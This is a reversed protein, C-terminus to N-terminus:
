KEYEEPNEWDFETDKPGEYGKFLDNMNVQSNVADNYKQLLEKYKTELTDREKLLMKVEVDIRKDIRSQLHDKTESKWENLLKGTEEVDHFLDTYTKEAKRLINRDMIITSVYLFILIVILIKEVM